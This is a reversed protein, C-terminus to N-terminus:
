QPPRRLDRQAFPELARDLVRADLQEDTAAGGSTFPRKRSSAPGRFSREIHSHATNHATLHSWRGSRRRWRARTRGRGNSGAVRRGRRRRRWGRPWSQRPRHSAGLEGLVVNAALARRRKREQQAHRRQAPDRPDRRQQRDVERAHRQRDEGREHELFGRVAGHPGRVRVVGGLVEQREGVQQCRQQERARPQIRLTGQARPERPDHPRQELHGEYGHDERQDVAFVEGAVVDEPARQRERAQVDSGRAGEVLAERGDDQTGGAVPAARHEDARALLDDVHRVREAVGLM